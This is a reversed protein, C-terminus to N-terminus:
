LGTRKKVGEIKQETQNENNFYFPELIKKIIKLAEKKAQGHIAAKEKDLFDIDEIVSLTALERDIHKKLEVWDSSNKLNDVINKHLM